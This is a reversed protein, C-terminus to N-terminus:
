GSPWSKSSYPLNFKGREILNSNQVKILNYKKKEKNESSLLRLKTRNTRSVGALKTHWGQDQSPRVEM